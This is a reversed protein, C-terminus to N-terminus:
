SFVINSSHDIWLKGHTEITTDIEITQTISNTLTDVSSPCLSTISSKVVRVGRSSVIYPSPVSLQLQTKKYSEAITSFYISVTHKLSVSLTYKATAHPALAASFTKKIEVVTSQSTRVIILM